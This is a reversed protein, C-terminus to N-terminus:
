AWFRIFISDKKSGKKKVQYKISLCIIIRKGSTLDPWNQWFHLFRDLILDGQNQWDETLLYTCIIIPSPYECFEQNITEKITNKKISSRSLFKEALDKCLRSELNDLKKLDSPWALEYDKLSVQNSDWDMYKPFSLKKLRELFQYHSQFEDGHIVCVLPKPPVQNLYNQIAEFLEEDQQKRNPLYPLLSPIKPPSPKSETHAQFKGDHSVYYNVQGGDSVITGGSMQGIIKNHDGKTNQEIQSGINSSDPALSNDTM